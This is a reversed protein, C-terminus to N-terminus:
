VNKDVGDSASTPRPTCVAAHRAPSLLLSTHQSTELLRMPFAPLAAPWSARVDFTLRQCGEDDSGSAGLGTNKTFFVAQENIARVSCVMRDHRALLEIM